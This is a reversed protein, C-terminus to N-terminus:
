LCRVSGNLRKMVLSVQRFVTDNQIWITFGYGRVDSATLYGVGECGHRLEDSSPRSLTLPKNPEGRWTYESM